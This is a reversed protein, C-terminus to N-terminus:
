LESACFFGIVQFAHACTHAVDRTCGSVRILLFIEWDTTYSKLRTGSGEEEEEEEEGSGRERM